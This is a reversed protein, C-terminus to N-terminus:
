APAHFFKTYSFSVLLPVVPVPSIAEHKLASFVRESFRFEFGLVWTSVFTYLELGLPDLTVLCGHSACVYMCASPGYM